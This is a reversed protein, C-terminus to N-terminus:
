RLIGHRKMRAILTTRKLGLTRAANTQNWDADTLAQIIRRRERRSQEEDLPLKSGVEGQQGAGAAIEASLLDLGVERHGGSLAVIRRVENELERVNGPWPYSLFAEAVAAALKLNPKGAAVAYTRLFHEVLLPIDELRERLPPVELVVPALRYYLDQRFRGSRVEAKLDRHTASVVRIKARSLESEGIRRFEGTELFRLFSVQVTLPMEGVEDLFFTGGDAAKLLGQRDRDAGTFAGRVHGFLQSEIMEHGLGAAMFPVFVGTRRQGLDHIARAIREKGVGTEGHVLVPVDSAALREVQEIVRRMSPSAAILSAIGSPPFRTAARASRPRPASSPHSSLHGGLPSGIAGGRDLEALAEASARLFDMQERTLVGAPHEARREVFLVLEFDGHAPRAPILAISGTHPFLREPLDHLSRAILLPQREKAAPYFHARLWRWLEAARRRSTRHTAVIEDDGPASRLAFMRDAAVARAVQSFLTLYAEPDAHQRAPVLARALGAYHDGHGTSARGMERELEAQVQRLRQRDAPPGQTEIVPRARDLSALARDVMGARMQVRARQLHCRALGLAHGLMLYIREAEALDLLADEIAAPSPAPSSPSDIVPEPGALRSDVLQLLTGALEPRYGTARLLDVARHIDNAARDHDGRMLAIESKVRRSLAEEVRDGAARAAALAEAADVEAHELEALALEAQARRRFAGAVTRANGRDIQDVLADFRQRAAEFAGEAMALEGAVAGIWSRYRDQRSEEAAREAEALYAAADPFRRRMVALRALSVTPEIGMRWSGSAQHLRVSEKLNAEAEDWHGIGMNLIGLNMLVVALRSGAGVEIGIAVARRLYGRATESHGSLLSVAGLNSLLDLMKARHGRAHRYTFADFLHDLAADPDGAVASAIGLCQRADAAMAPVDCAIALELARRAPALAAPERDLHIELWAEAILGLMEQQPTLPEGAVARAEQLHVKAEEPRNARACIGALRLHVVAFDAAAAKSSEATLWARYLREAEHSRGEDLAQDARTWALAPGDPIAEMGPAPAGAPRNEVTTKRQM